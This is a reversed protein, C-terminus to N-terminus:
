FDHHIEVRVRDDAGRRAQASRRAHGYGDGHEDHFGGARHLEDYGEHEGYEEGLGDSILVRHANVVRVDLNAASREEVLRLVGADGHVLQLHGLDHRVREDRQSRHHTHTLKYLNQCVGRVSRKGDRGGVHALTVVGPVRDLKVAGDGPVEQQLHQRVPDGHEVRLFRALHQVFVRLVPVREQLLQLLNRELRGADLHDRGRQAPSLHLQRYVERVEHLSM